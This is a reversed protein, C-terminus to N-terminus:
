KGFLCDFIGLQGLDRKVENNACEVVCLLCGLIAPLLDSNEGKVGRKEAACTDAATCSLFSFVKDAVEAIIDVGIDRKMINALISLVDM